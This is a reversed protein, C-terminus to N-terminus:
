KVDGAPQRYVPILEPGLARYRTHSFKVKKHSCPVKVGKVTVTLPESCLVQDDWDQLGLQSWGKDYM